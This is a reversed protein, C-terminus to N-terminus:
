SGQQGCFARLMCGVGGVEGLFEEVLNRCARALIVGFDLSSM